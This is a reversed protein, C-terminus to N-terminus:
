DGGCGGCGGGCGGGDGGCSSGCGGGDASNTNLPRLSRDLEAYGYAALVTTGFLAVGLPLTGTSFVAPRRKLDRHQKKIDAFTRRGRRTHTVRRGCTILAFVTALVCLIILWAVPKDRSIGIGIKIAGFLVPILAILLPRWRARSRGASSLHLGHTELDALIPVCTQEVRALADKYPLGGTAPIHEWLDREIPHANADPSTKRSLSLTKGRSIGLHDRSALSAVAAATARAPGGALCANWYPDNNIVHAPAVGGPARWHHLRLFLALAFCLLGVKLWVLLFLPGSLNFVSLGWDAATRCGGTLLMAFALGAATAIWALHRPKPLTWFRDLNVHRVRPKTATAVSPPWIDAPPEEDFTARYSALTHAYWSVFKASENAGGKSPEHHLPRGLVQQCLGHWYSRTYTLHLHWAQDVSDSPSVPHGATMALLVFRRYERIVRLAHAPSWNNERALKRSYPFSSGPEDLPFAAIRTWLEAQSTTM